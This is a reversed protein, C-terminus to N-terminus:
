IRKDESNSLLNILYCIEDDIINIKYKNVIFALNEKIINYLDLNESIYDDKMPYTAPNDENRLRGIVFSLHLIVGVLNEDSLKISLKNQLTNLLRTVDNFLEVGDINYINEKIIKPINLMATKSDIKAQLEKLVHMNFVEYMTYQKIPSDIPFSSVIFLIENEKQLNLIKQKFFTKDLCNLCTIEFYDNNIRLNSTLFNKIAIAAGEGTLCATVILVKNENVQKGNLNKHIEVYSNVMLVDNYIEDLTSGLLAKRAAELVHLTSVLSIVKIEVKFETRIVDAFTTLSGMDVLLLYGASTPNEKIGIKLSELVTSPAVDISANIPIVYNEGLLRNSVDAMSTATSEGHAILIVRVKDHSVDNFTNDQILFLTLYGAEDIPVSKDIHNEIMEKIELAISFELPYLEKIKNLNTNIIIKDNNIRNILTNIHLAFATYLNNDFTITLKQVVYNIIKDFCNLIDEDIITLLNKRNIEESVESNNKNFHKAIDKELINEIDIDSIDLSKLKELKNEIFDYITNDGNNFITNTDENSGNFRFYEIEESMLKNWLVRHEKEKYLGEKIYAPLVKSHIRVDTKLNTLFESYAKACLLQVDSKLQGINNPCDYSLLARLSNLSVYIEKDLRISEYKFFSKILFLREDLTREKLSPITIVIPIRRTFTNLLASTPDETTASIILVDSTRSESDGIRRFTGSDLFIFLAEQGEPPLRHIEDLFLIGGNAQEILGVKDVEAGTYAGRKVGFLQSTLLQPNNTYDACNFVIFPSDETKVKMELAYNHMLSAFMSKGVGTSGLILSNMGKPPYLIAAKAQEVSDRLSINNKALLDLQSEKSTIKNESLFFLVPRGSSKYLKGEKCLENLEHSLNARSMNVLSALTQTDIGDSSNLYLLKQYILEKKTM